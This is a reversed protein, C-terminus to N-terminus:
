ARGSFSRIADSVSKAGFLVFTVGVIRTVVLGHTLFFRRVVPMGAIALLIIDAVIFGILAAVLLGPASSWTLLGAYQAVLTTFMAVAVPYAKPNTMGFIAGAIWPNGGGIVSASAVDRTMIARLGLYALYLGCGIGLAEFVLPGLQNVGIIGALALSGWFVDGVLHGTVFRAAVGRGEQATLAFLAMFGPGPTLVYIMAAALTAVYLGFTM